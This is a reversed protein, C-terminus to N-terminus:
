WRLSRPTSRAESAVAHERHRPALDPFRKDLYALRAATDRKVVVGTLSRPYIEVAVPAVAPEDFPWITFGAASAPSSRSAM